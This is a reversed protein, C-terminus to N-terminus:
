RPGVAAHRPGPGTVRDVRRQEEGPKGGAVRGEGRRVPVQERDERRRRVEFAPRDVPAAFGLGARRRQELYEAFLEQRRGVRLGRVHEARRLPSRRAHDRARGEALPMREALRSRDARAVERSARFVAHEGAGPNRGPQRGPPRRDVADGFSIIHHGVDPWDGAAALHVVLASPSPFLRVPRRPARGLLQCGEPLEGTLVVADCPLRGESGTPMASERAGRRELSDAREGYRLQVEAAPALARPRAASGGDPFYVCGGIDMSSIVAYLAPARIPSQGAHRAQFTFVHRPGGPAVLRALDRSVLSLPSDIDSAVFRDFQAQSLRTLRTRLRYYGAAGVVAVRDTRGPGARM